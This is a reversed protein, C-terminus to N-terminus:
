LTPNFPWGSTALESALRLFDPTTYWVMTVERAYPNVGFDVACHREGSQSEFEVVCSLQVGLADRFLAVDEPYADHLEVTAGGADNFRVSVTADALLGRLHERLVHLVWAAPDAQKHERDHTAGKETIGDDSCWGCGSSSALRQPMRPPMAALVKGAVLALNGESEHHDNKIHTSM